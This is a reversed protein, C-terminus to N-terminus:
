AASIRDTQVPRDTHSPRELVRESAGLLPRCPSSNAHEIMLLAADARKTQLSSRWGCTCIGQRRGGVTHMSTVHTPERADV